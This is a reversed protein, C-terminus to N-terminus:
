DAAPPRADRRRPRLEGCREPKGCSYKKHPECDCGGDSAADREKTGFFAARAHDSSRPRPDAEGAHFARQRGDRADSRGGGHHFILELKANWAWRSEQLTGDM